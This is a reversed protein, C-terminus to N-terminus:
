ESFTARWRILGLIALLGLLKLSNMAFLPANACFANDARALVEWERYGHALISIVGLACILGPARMARSTTAALVLGLGNLVDIALLLDNKLSIWPNRGPSLLHMGVALALAEGATVLGALIALTRLSTARM